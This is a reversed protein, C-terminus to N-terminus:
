SACRHAGAAVLPTRRPQWEAPRDGGSLWWRVADVAREGSRGDGFPNAVTAMALRAAEDGLLQSARGAVVLPDTGVLQACGAEVAEPRETTERLVLVPTGFSPAEEQIGGSDTLVLTAAQLHAILAPHDLPEVLRVREVEGLDSLLAESVLPNPHLPIVVEIDPHADILRRIALAVDRLPQGWNERRHATVLVLRRGQPVDLRSRTAAHIAADIATNGIRLIRDTPIGERELNRVAADTPALHLSALSAIVRRYTEEPFPNDVDHSRLGAELHVVPVRQWFAAMAGALASATDGQVLVAAPSRRQIKAELRPLLHGLLDAQGGGARAITPIRDDAELDFHELALDFIREHQGTGLISARLSGSARAALAVPAIKIAEPRTGAVLLLEPAGM